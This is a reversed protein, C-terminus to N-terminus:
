KVAKEIQSIKKIYNLWKDNIVIPDVIESIKNANISIKKALEPNNLVEKIKRSLQEKNDIPVLFGNEGDKILFSAGGCPCDTSVCPIGIAMAEMLANPMGEYDSSLVFLGSKYIEDKINDVQGKFLVVKDLNLSKVYEKLENELSGTGYILLKYDKFEDKLLNFSDILLKHNKQKELRGVTVITKDRVGDFPKCIFDPNIPNPIIVSREQIKKSFYKKAEETQFVFGDARRYLIKMILKNLISKYEVKPDNRVSVIVKKKNFPKLFLIRYSPEPLFSLIIDPNFDKIYKNLKKVRRINKFIVNNNKDNVDDLTMFYINKNLEYMSKDPPTVIIGITNEKVLWNSLNAVVREAGGKTMSGLCFLIRM